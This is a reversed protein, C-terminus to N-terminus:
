IQGQLFRLYVPDVELLGLLIPAIESGNQGNTFIVVGDGTTKDLVAVTYLGDDRGTHLLVTHGPFAAVEWGLGFGLEPPCTPAAPGEQCDEMMSVHIHTRERAIEPSLGQDQWVAILFAAYDRPTTYVLDAASFRKAIHPKLPQGQADAPIAIAGEFWPRGTYATRRMRVSDFLHAQALAEFPQGTRKEVFAALYEFGEGSYGYAEGPDRKFTLGTKRNRWNPFGTQHTLALRPTLKLRRPDNAIDPDTWYAAMPEDLSFAHNSALRLVVEATLPKTLSAINYLTRDTAPVGASQQGWAGALAVRGRRVLAISVSPVKHAALLPPVERDLRARIAAISAAATAAEALSSVIAPDPVDATAAALFVPMWAATCIVFRRFQNM